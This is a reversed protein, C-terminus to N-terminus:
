QDKPKDSSDSKDSKDPKESKDSKDSGSGKSEKSQSGTGGTAEDPKQGLGITKGTEAANLPPWDNKAFGPAEKLQQKDVNLLLDKKGKEVTLAQIPVAVNKGGGLAGGSSLVAYAVRGSKLDIVVDSIKGIKENQKNRVEMGTLKSAKNVDSVKQEMDQESVKIEDKSKEGAQQSQQQSKQEDKPSPDDAPAGFAANGASFAVTVAMLAGGLRLTTRKM